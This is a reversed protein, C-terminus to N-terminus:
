GDTSRKDTEEYQKVRNKVESLMTDCKNRTEQEMRDCQMRINQEYQDCAAQTAEFIGNLQLAAEAISGAANIQITRNTLSEELQAVKELLMGNEKRLELLLELLDVRRLEKLENKM